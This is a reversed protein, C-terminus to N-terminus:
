LKGEKYLKRLKIKQLQREIILDALSAPIFDRNQGSFLESLKKENIDIRYLINVLMDFKEDLLLRLKDTLYKRFEELSTSDTSPILSKDDSILFDKEVFRVIENVQKREEEM